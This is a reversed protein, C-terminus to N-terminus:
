IMIAAVQVKRGLRRATVVNIEVVVSSTTIIDATTHRPTKPRWVKRPSITIDEDEEECVSRREALLSPDDDDYKTKRCFNGRSSV